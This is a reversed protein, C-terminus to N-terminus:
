APGIELVPRYGAPTRDYLQFSPHVAPDRIQGLTVAAAVPVAAFVHLRRLGKHRAEVEALLERLRGAFAALAAPSSLVDPSPTVTATTLEFRPPDRVAAPLEDHGITGSVNLVLVGEAASSVATPLILSFAVPATAPWQWGDTHRHRQYVDTPVTDDLKSGLYALLPLRAFAFVSVHNIQDRAVGEHFKHDIVEDIIATGRRYYSEDAAAEGPLHRLDIEISHRDYALAFRPFRDATGIVAAAVANRDVEVANGRLQGVMRIVVTSRDEAFGTVHLIREEHEQKLRRLFDVGFLEQTTNKDLETHEDECVLILNEPEDREAPDLDELGRPSAGTQAQGVIHALEGFTVERGSLAGELLYRNCIVCRGASRVWVKLRVEPSLGKRKFTKTPVTVGLPM